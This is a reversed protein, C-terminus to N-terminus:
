ACCSQNALISVPEKYYGLQLMLYGLQSYSTTHDHQYNVLEMNEVTKDVITDDVIHHSLLILM